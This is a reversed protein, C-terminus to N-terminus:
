GACARQVHHWLAGTRPVARDAIHQTSTLQKTLSEHPLAASSPLPRHFSISCIRFSVYVLSCRLCVFCFLLLWPSLFLVNISLFVLFFLVCSCDSLVYFHTFFRFCFPPVFGLSSTWKKKKKDDMSSRTAARRRSTSRKRRGFTCSCYFM